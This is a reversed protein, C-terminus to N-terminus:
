FRCIPGGGAGPVGPCFVAQVQALTQLIQITTLAGTGDAVVQRRALVGHEFAAKLVTERIPPADWQVESYHEITSDLLMGHFTAIVQPDLFINANAPATGPTENQREAGYGAGFHVLVQAVIAQAKKKINVVYVAKEEALRSSFSRVPAIQNKAKSSKRQSKAM